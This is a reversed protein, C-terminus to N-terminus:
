QTRRDREDPKDCSAADPPSDGLEKISEFVVSMGNLFPGFRRRVFAVMPKMDMPAVLCASPIDAIDRAQLRVSRVYLNFIFGRPALSPHMYSCSYTLIRPQLQQIINWGVVREGHLLALSNREELSVEYQFPRLRRPIWDANECEEELVRRQATTLERWPVITYGPPLEYERMFPAELMRKVTFSAHLKHPIPAPWGCKELVRVLAPTQEPKELYGCRVRRAGLRRMEAELRRLLATGLGQNREDKSVFLSHAEPVSGPLKGFALGVPVGGRSAGIALCPGNHTVSALARLHFPFVMHTYAIVSFRNLLEIEIGTDIATMLDTM